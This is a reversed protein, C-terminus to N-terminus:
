GCVGLRTEARIVPAQASVATSSQYAMLAGGEMLILLLWVRRM